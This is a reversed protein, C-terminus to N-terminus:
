SRMAPVLTILRGPALWIRTAQILSVLCRDELPRWPLWRFWVRNRLKLVPHSDQALPLQPVVVAM